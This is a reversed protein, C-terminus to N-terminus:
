NLRSLLLHANALLLTHTVGVPRPQGGTGEHGELMNRHLDFVETRINLVDRHMEFLVGRRMGPQPPPSEGPASLAFM